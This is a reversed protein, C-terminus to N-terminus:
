ASIHHAAEGSHEMFNQTFEPGSYYIREPKHWWGPEEALFHEPRKGEAIEKLMKALATPQPKGSRVDFVGPEYINDNNVLLSNWDFSGLLAWATVARVDHGEARLQEAANWVECFWKVQQDPSSGLHAETVAVPLGYRNCIEALRAAPGLQDDLDVRVAEVDAYRHRRNGGHSAPPYLDLREDLYRDSTLYHNVGLIDPACPNEVFWELEGPPVGRALFYNWLAHRRDVLGCLLDFTLWRRENDFHAQYAMRPTSFTKGLDETQILRASPNIGRIARMAMVTARCQQLLARIFLTENKGHPYWHGYLGSFRATTLPENVPTYNEVWPYREAVARAYSCFKEPFLPDVLSTHAPGSGHHLLGVIPDIGLERLRNLRADSWTWDLRGDRETREWLVPYRLRTIGLSAVLDLDQPRDHHGTRVNQDFYSNGLRNVTCEFGGWLELSM